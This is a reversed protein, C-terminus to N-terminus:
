LEMFLLKSMINYNYFLQVSQDAWAFYLLLSVFTTILSKNNIMKKAFEKANVQVLNFKLGQKKVKQLM